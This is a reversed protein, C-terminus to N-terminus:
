HPGSQHKKCAQLLIKPWSSYPPISIPTIATRIPVNQNSLFHSALLLLETVYQLLSDPRAFSYSPTQIIAIPGREPEVMILFVRLNLDTMLRAFILGNRWWGKGPYNIVAIILSCEPYCHRGTEPRMPPLSGPQFVTPRIRANAFVVNVLSWSLDKMPAGTADSEALDMLRFVSSITQQIGVPATSTFTKSSTACQLFNSLGLALQFVNLVGSIACIVMQVSLMLNHMCIAGCHTPVSSGENKGSNKNRTAYIEFTTLTSQLYM